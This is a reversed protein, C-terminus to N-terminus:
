TVIHEPAAQLLALQAFGQGGAAKCLAHHLHSHPLSSTANSFINMCQCAARAFSCRDMCWLVPAQVLHMAAQVLIQSDCMFDAPFCKASCTVTSACFFLPPSELTCPLRKLSSGTMCCYRSTFPHGQM